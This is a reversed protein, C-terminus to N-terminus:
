LKGFPPYRQVSLIMWKHSLRVSVCVYGLSLSIPLSSENRSRIQSIYLKRKENFQILIGGTFKTLRISIVFVSFGNIIRFYEVYIETVTIKNFTETNVSISLVNHTHTHTYLISYLTYTYLIKEILHSAALQKKKSERRRRAVFNM